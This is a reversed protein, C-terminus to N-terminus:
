LPAWKAWRRKAPSLQEIKEARIMGAKAHEGDAILAAVQNHVEEVVRMANALAAIKDTAWPEASAIRKLRAGYEQHVVDFAPARFEKLANDAQRAREVRQTESTM